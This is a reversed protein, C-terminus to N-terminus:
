PAKQEPEQLDPQQKEGAAARKRALDERAKKLLIEPDVKAPPATRSQSPSRTARFRYRFLGELEGKDEHDTFVKIPVDTMEPPQEEVPKFIEFRQREEAPIKIPLPTRIKWEEPLEIKNILVEGETDCNEIQFIVRLRRDEPKLGRYYYCYFIGSRPWFRPGPEHYPLRANVRIMKSKAQPDNTELAIAKSVRGEYGKTKLKAELIVEEGPGLQDKPLETTTCGCFPRVKTIKLIEDGANRIAFKFLVGEDSPEVRGLDNVEPEVELKPAALLITQLCFAALLSLRRKM